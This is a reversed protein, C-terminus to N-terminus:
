VHARGIEKPGVDEVFKEEPEALEARTRDDVKRADKDARQAEGLRAEGPEPARHRLADREAKARMFVMDFDPILGRTVEPLAELRAVKMAAAAVAAARADASDAGTGKEARQAEAPQGEAQRVSVVVKPTPKPVAVLRASSTVVVKPALDRQHMPEM